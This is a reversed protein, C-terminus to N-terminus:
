KELYEIIKNVVKEANEKDMYPHFPLSLVTKSLQSTNKYDEDAYKYEQFAKQQHM